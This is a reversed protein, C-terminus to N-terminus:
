RQRFLCQWRSGAKILRTPICLLAQSADATVDLYSGSTIPPIEFLSAMSVCMQKTNTQKNIQKRSIRAWTGKLTFMGRWFCPPTSSPLVWLTLNNAPVSDQYRANPPQVTCVHFLNSLPVWSLKNLFHYHFEESWQKSFPKSSVSCFLARLISMCGATYAEGGLLCDYPGRAIPPRTGEWRLGAESRFHFTPRRVKCGAAKHFVVLVPLLLLLSWGGGGSGNREM